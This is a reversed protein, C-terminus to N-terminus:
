WFFFPNLFPNFFYLRLSRIQMKRFLKYLVTTFSIFFGIALSLLVWLLVGKIHYFHPMILTIPIMCIVVFKCTNRVGFVSTLYPTCFLPFFVLVIGAISNVYGVNSEDWGLGDKSQALKFWQCLLMRFGFQVVAVLGFITIIIMYSQNKFLETVSADSSKNSKKNPVCFVVMALALLTIM